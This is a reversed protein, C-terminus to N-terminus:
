VYVCVKCIVLSFMLFIWHINRKTETRENGITENCSTIMGFSSIKCLSVIAIFFFVCDTHASHWTGLKHTSFLIIGSSIRFYPFCFFVIFPVLPVPYRHLFIIWIFYINLKSQSHFDTLKRSLYVLLWSQINLLLISLWFLGFLVVCLLCIRLFLLDFHFFLSFPETRRHTIEFTIGCSNSHMRNPQFESNPILQIKEM